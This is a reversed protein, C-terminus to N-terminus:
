FRTLGKEAVGSEHLYKDITKAIFTIIATIQVKAFADLRTGFFYEVFSTILGETLLYSVGSILLLRGLEKLSELLSKKEM